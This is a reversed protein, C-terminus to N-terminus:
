LVEEIFIRESHENYVKKTKEATAAKLNIEYEIKKCVEKTIIPHAHFGGNRSKQEELDDIIRFYKPEGKFTILPTTPIRLTGRREYKYYNGNEGKLCTFPTHQGILLELKETPCVVFKGSEISIKLLDKTVKGRISNLIDGIKAKPNALPEVLTKNDQIKSIMDYSSGHSNEWEFYAKIAILYSQFLKENYTKERSMAGLTYTLPGSGVCFDRSFSFMDKSKGPHSGMFGGMNVEKETGATRLASFGTNRCRDGTMVTGDPMLKIRVYLERIPHRFGHDNKVVIKEFFLTISVGGRPLQVFIWPPLCLYSSSFHGKISEWADEPDIPDLESMEFNEGYMNGLLKRISDLAPQNPTCKETLFARQHNLLEQMYFSLGRLPPWAKSEKLGHYLDRSGVM